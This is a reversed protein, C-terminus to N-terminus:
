GEQQVAVSRIADAHRGTEGQCPQTQKVTSHTIRYGVNSTSVFQSLSPALIAHQHFLFISELIEDVAGFKQAHFLPGGRIAKRNFAPAGAAQQHSNNDVHTWVQESGYM